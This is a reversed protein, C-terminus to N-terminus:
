GGASEKLTGQGEVASRGWKLVFFCVKRMGLVAPNGTVLENCTGAEKRCIGDYPWVASAWDGCFTTDFMTQHSAFHNDVM